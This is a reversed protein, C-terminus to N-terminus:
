HKWHQRQYTAPFWLFSKLACVVGSRQRLGRLTKGNSGRYLILSRLWKVHAPIGAEDQQGEKSDWSQWKSGRQPPSKSLHEGGEENDSSNM